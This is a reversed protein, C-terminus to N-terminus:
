ASLCLKCLGVWLGVPQHAAHNRRPGKALLCINPISEACLVFIGPGSTALTVGIKGSARYYADAAISSAQESQGPIFQLNKNKSISDVLHVVSGGQGGFVVSSYKSIINAIHDSIKM